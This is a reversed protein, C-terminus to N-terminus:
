HLLVYGNEVERHCNACLLVCKELEKVAREWSVASINNAVAPNKTTPDIHHFELAGVYRDYGCLLCCGGMYNVLSIKNARLRATVQERKAEKRNSWSKRECARQKDIDKYPM